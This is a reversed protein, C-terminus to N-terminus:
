GTKEFSSPLGTKIQRTLTQAFRASKNYRTQLYVTKVASNDQVGEITLRTVHRTGFCTDKVYM